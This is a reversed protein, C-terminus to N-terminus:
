KVPEVTYGEKRLLAIVGKDSGLHGAGVAIFTPKEIILKEIRDIWEQNRKYLLINTYAEFQVSSTIMDHMKKMDESKYAKIMFDLETKMKETDSTYEVLWSLQEEMPIQDFINLQYEITELGKLEKDGKLQMFTAEYSAPQPCELGKMYIMSMLGIPKMVGLQTLDASYHKKFFANVTALEEETLQTSINAMDKNLAMQQAKAMFNPEDMDLELVVQETNEVAEKTADSLIMDDPCIMHITGFLYSPKSLDNGSIEWLLSQGFTVTALCCFAIVSLIRLKKM